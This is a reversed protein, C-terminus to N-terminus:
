NPRMDGELKSFPSSTHLYTDPSNPNLVPILAIGRRGNGARGKVSEYGRRSLEKGFRANSLADMGSNHCWGLYSQYLDKM